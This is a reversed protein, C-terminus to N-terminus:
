FDLDGRFLRAAITRRLIESTGDAIRVARALQWGRHLHTENTLGMAGYVQMARDYVRFCMETAFAKAMAMEKIAPEGKEILGAYHLGMHKAAYIEIASEALMFSVAQNDGIPRGFTVREKSYQVAKKLAWQASGVARGCNFLRGTSVGAMALKFGQGLEGVLHDKPLRLHTLSLIGEHGGIEGFLRIPRDVAFGAAKTDTLFCSIGGKRAAAAEPDTVVFLFAHDAYPANSIWMKSGNIIWDDGDRVARTKMMWPDSGADPESMVFCHTKEGAMLAPVIAERLGPSLGLLLPGPGTAWHAVSDYPLEHAPGYTANLLEWIHFTMRAGQGGGGLEKDTILTYYGVKASATRVMRKLELLEPVYRGMEDYKKREDAFLEAHEQELPLAVRDNFQRLGDLMLREEASLALYM